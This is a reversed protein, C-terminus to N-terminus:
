SLRGRYFESIKLELEAMMGMIRHIEKPNRKLPM